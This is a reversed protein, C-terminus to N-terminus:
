SLVVFGDIPLHSAGSLTDTLCTAASPAFVGVAYEGDVRLKFRDVVAPLPANWDGGAVITGALRHRLALLFDVEVDSEQHFAKKAGQAIPIHVSVMWVKGTRAAAFYRFKNGRSIEIEDVEDFSARAIVATIAACKGDAGAIRSAHFAWGEKQAAARLIECVDRGIEQLFVADRGENHLQAYVFDLVASSHKMIVSEQCMAEILLEQANPSKPRLARALDSCTPRIGDTLVPLVHPSPPFEMVNWTAFSRSALPVAQAVPLHDSACLSTAYEVAASAKFVVLSAQLGALVEGAELCERAAHRGKREWDHLSLSCLSQVRKVLNPYMKTGARSMLLADPIADSKGSLM